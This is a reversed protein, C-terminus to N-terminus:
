PVHKKKEQPTATQSFTPCCVCKQSFVPSISAASLFVFLSPLMIHVSRRRRNNNNHHFFVNTTQDMQLGIFSALTVTARRGTQSEPMFHARWLGLEAGTPSSGNGHCGRIIKKKNKKKNKLSTLPFLPFLFHFQLLHCLFYFFFSIWNHSPHFLLEKKNTLPQNIQAGETLYATLNVRQSPQQWHCM